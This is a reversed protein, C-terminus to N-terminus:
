LSRGQSGHQQKLGDLDFMKTPWEPREHWGEIVIPMGSDESEVVQRFLEEPGLNASLRKVRRFRPGSAVLTALSWDRTTLLVSNTPQGRGQM